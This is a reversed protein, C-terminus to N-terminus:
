EIKVGIVLIDDVQLLNGKWVDLANKLIVKQVKMDLEYIELLLARFQKKNFKKGKPGGFQDTYGDSFIYIADGRELNITHNKFLQNSEDNYVGIPFRDGKIIKLEHNRILYLPNNAGSFHLIKNELDLSCLAIDMGDKVESKDTDQRLTQRIEQNLQNLIEAPEIKKYEYIIKNLSNYGIVSMLAGPVGHGTCDVAAFMIKEASDVCQIDEFYNFALLDNSSQTDVSHRNNFVHNSVENRDSL